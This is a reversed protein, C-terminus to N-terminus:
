LARNGIIRRPQGDAVRREEILGHGPAAPEREQDCAIVIGLPLQEAFDAHIRRIKGGRSKLPIRFKGRQGEM